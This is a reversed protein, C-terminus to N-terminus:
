LGAHVGSLSLQAANVAPNQLQVVRTTKRQSVREINRALDVNKREGDM